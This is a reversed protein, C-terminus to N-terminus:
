PASGTEHMMEQPEQFCGVNRKRDQIQHHQRQEQHGLREQQFRLPAAQCPGRQDKQATLYTAIADEKQDIGLEGELNGTGISVTICPRVSTISWGIRPGTAGLTPQNSDPGPLWDNEAHNARM